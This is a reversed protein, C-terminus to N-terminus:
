ALLVSRAVEAAKDAGVLLEVLKLAFAPATGVGRSTVLRGDVVVPDEKYTGGIEDHDSGPYGTFVRGRLYGQNGLVVAPAACIAALWGDGALTTDICQKVLASAALNKAGPGGGPLILADWGPPVQALLVDCGFTVGRAGSVSLAGLGAVVVKVGARRLLDIPTVAEIEEFGDALIVVATKM